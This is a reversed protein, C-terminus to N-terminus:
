YGRIGNSATGGSRENFYIAREVIVPGDASVRTSVESAPLIDDVGVTFRSHPEVQYNKVTNRGGPEMFTMVVNRTEDGPNQVLVWTEFGQDTYGEALYWESDPTPTGICDHGDSRNNWYMAREVIVPEQSRVKTSVESAPLDNDVLITFRSEPALEYQKVTTAGNNDMYTVTVINSTPQPNQILVWEEFGQDTYGEALYWTRSMSVAGISCTGATMYNLYQAREAVVPETSEIRTSVSDSPVTDDVKITFRSHAAVKYNVVKNGTSATMFTAKVAAEKDGPNQILVYEDFSEATYGEALYWTKSPRSVGTSDHGARRGNFYMAREVAVPRDSKIFTSVEANPLIHNVTITFRSAAPIAYSREQTAGGPLMFTVKVNAPQSGPNQILVYTEFQGGTANAGTYGEALYWSTSLDPITNNVYVPTGGPRIEYTSGTSRADLRATYLGDDVVGGDDAKGDWTLSKQGPAQSSAPFSKKLDPGDWISATVKASIPLKYKVTTSANIDDGNPSMAHSGASVGNLDVMKKAAVKSPLLNRNRFTPSGSNSNFYLTPVRTAPDANGWAARSFVPVRLPYTTQKYYLADKTRDLTIGAVADLLGLSAAGRPYYGLSQELSQAAATIQAEKWAGSRLSGGEDGSSGSGETRGFGALSSPSVYASAGRASGGPYIAVDWFAGWLNKAYYRQLNWYRKSLRLPNSNNLDIGLLCAVQDRWLNQSVWENYADYSSHPCGYTKLTKGTSNVLDTRMKYTNNSTLGATRTGTLLYLLGNSPYISYAERDAALVDGDICVAYHDSLWMDYELTQNISEVQAQCKMRYYPDGLTSAMQSVAQHAALCKVGLYAQNKGNQIALSGQDVTNTVYRDPIGDNNADCRIIFDVLRKVTAFKGQVYNTDGTTKWYKYLLLIFNTNEEVAMDDPYAQGVVQDGFGMDHSLYTGLTSSKTYLLWENMIKKLLDPWFDFYFWANNYEVDVTSHFRCSSGEWVSFWERNSGSVAWWTNMLYSQFSYAILNKVSGSYESPMQLYGNSSFTSDFFKSKTEVDDGATRNNLAYDVVSKVHIFDRTYKFAFTSEDYSRNRVHLVSDAIHGAMVFHKTSSGGPALAPSWVAGTYGRPYFSYIPNKYDSYTRPYGTPSVNGWLTDQKFDTFEGEVTGKFVVDSDESKPVALVERAREGAGGNQSEDYYNYITTSQYGKKTADDFPLVGAYAWSEKHPRAFVFSPTAAVPGVNKVNVDIYFFPAGSIKENRPYFPARFTVTVEFPVTSSSCTYTQSTMTQSLSVKEWVPYRDTFPLCRISSGDVLALVLDTLDGTGDGLTSFRSALKQPLLNLCLRSGLRGLTTEYSNQQSSNTLRTPIKMNLRSTAANIEVANSSGIYLRITSITAFGSCGSENSRFRISLVGSSTTKAWGTYQYAANKGVRAFIDLKSIVKTSKFYVNFIRRRSASIDHEVFSLEVRYTTSAQLNAVSYGFDRGERRRQFKYAQKTVNNTGSIKQKSFEVARTVESPYYNRLEVIPQGRGAALASGACLLVILVATFSGAILVKKILRFEM